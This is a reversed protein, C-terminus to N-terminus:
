VTRLYAALRDRYDGAGIKKDLVFHWFIEHQGYGRVDQGESRENWFGRLFNDLLQVRAEIGAVPIARILEDAEKVLMATLYNKQFEPAPSEERSYGVLSKFIASTITTALGLRTEDNTTDFFSVLERLLPTASDLLRSEVYDENLQIQALLCQALALQEDTSAKALNEKAGEIHLNM